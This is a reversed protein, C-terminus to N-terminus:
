RNPFERMVDKLREITITPIVGQPSVTVTGRRWIQGSCIEDATITISPRRKLWRYRAKGTSTFRAFRVKEGRRRLKRARRACVERGFTAWEYDMLMMGTISKMPAQLAHSIMERMYSAQQEASKGRMFIEFATTSM